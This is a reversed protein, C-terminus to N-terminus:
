YYMARQKVQDRYGARLHANGGGRLWSRGVPDDDVVLSTLM